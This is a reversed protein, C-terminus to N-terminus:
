LIRKQLVQFFIKKKLSSWIVWSLTEGADTHVCLGQNDQSVATIRDEIKGCWGMRYFIALISM